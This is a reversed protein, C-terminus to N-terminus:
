ARAGRKTVGYKIKVLEDDLERQTLRKTTSKTQINMAKTITNGIAKPMFQLVNKIKVAASKVNDLVKKVIEKGKDIAKGTAQKVKVATKHIDKLVNEVVNRATGLADGIDDAITSGYSRSVAKVLKPDPNPDTLRSHKPEANQINLAKEIKEAISPARQGTSQINLPNNNKSSMSKSVAKVLSKSPKEDTLRSHKPEANQINLLNRDTLRSTTTKTQINSPNDSYRKKGAPTLTGDENQYRRVGWKQGLIGHHALIDTM